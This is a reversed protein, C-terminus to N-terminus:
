GARSRPREYARTRRRSPVTHAALLVCRCGPHFPPMTDDGPGVERAHFPDCVSCAPGTQQSVIRARMGHRAYHALVTSRHALMELWELLLDLKRHQYAAAEPTEPPPIVHLGDWRGPFARQGAFFAQWRDFDPWSFESAASIEGVAKHERVSLGRTGALALIVTDFRPSVTGRDM